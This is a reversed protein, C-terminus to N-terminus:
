KRRFNNSFSFVVHIFSKGLSLLSLFNLVEKSAIASGSSQSHAKCTPGSAGGLSGSMSSKNQSQAAEAQM